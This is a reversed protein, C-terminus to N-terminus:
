DRCPEDAKKVSHDGAPEDTKNLETAISLLRDAVLDWSVPGMSSHAAGRIRSDFALGLSESCADLFGQEDGFRVLLGNVRDKIHMQAAAYDFAVVVLGSALAETVTNGFTETMSPFVMIDASAYIEALEEGHKFTYCIVNPNERKFRKYSPGDGVIVCRTDPNLQQMKKFAQSLLTLNKEPSIRSAFLAVPTNSEAGWEARRDLSRKSPHFLEADVGRGLVHLDNYGLEQLDNMVSDSPVVTATARKHFNIMYRTARAALFKMKWNAAYQDYNTHYGAITPIGSQSAAKVAASGLFAEGAIYVVDPRSKQWHMRLRSKRVFGLSISEYKPVRVSTIKLESEPHPGIITVKHGEARLCTVLYSLTKAAGNIDPPYTDTVFEIHM